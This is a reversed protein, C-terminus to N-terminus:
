NIKTIGGQLQLMGGGKVQAMGGGEAKLLATGNIEVQVAKITIKVPTIKISSAGCKLEISQMAERTEKGASAKSTINGLKVETKQHGQSIETSQNGMAVKTTMDGQSVETKYNQKIKQEKDTEIEIKQSGTEIKKEEDGTKITVYHSGEHLTETKDNKVVLTMSGDGDHADADVEDFGITTVSKNKILAQHDKQAQIRMLESDKKDDFMLENYDKAGGGKSSKSRMGFQTKDDPLKVFPETDKNYLMGTCIPRDPDGEEFQIIVEQGMRPIAIIGWDKGSWPTAVRVWCSSNEDKKGDRDWHFQVKIRGYKDTYIEEGSKGVVTATHLGSIRPWETTLPARFQEKKPVATFTCFYNQKQLDEPFELGAIALDRRVDDDAFDNSVQCYHIASHVLFEDSAKHEPHEDLAIVYGVAMNRVVGSGRYVQHKIAEAEMRVRARKNGLGTERYHGPTDYLEFNKYGHDGKAISNVTKLDATPKEFDFDMLTVKGSTLMESNAFESVYDGRRNPGGGSKTYFQIKPGNPMPKHASLGDCLVMKELANKATANDFFYYIGEEEMLRCVFDFDTERYQVCYEREAPTENVKNTYDSLGHDSFVKEIIQLATMNQFIRNNTARKLLWFWPRVEAAYQQFGDKFGLAEVAVCIGSFHRDTDSPTKVAVTMRKGVMQKLKPPSKTAKFEITTETLQSLGERMVARTLELGTPAYDGELWVPHKATEARESM